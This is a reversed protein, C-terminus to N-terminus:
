PWVAGFAGPPVLEFDQRGPPSWKLELMGGERRGDYRLAFDHTGGALTITNTAGGGVGTTPGPLVTRGGVLLEVNGNSEVSFRYIGPVGTDLTGTWLHSVRSGRDSLQALNRFGIVRDRREGEDGLDNSWRGLLTGSVPRVDLWRPEVIAMEQGPRQWSLALRAQSDRLNGRIELAHWGIGLTVGRGQAIPTGDLLLEAPIGSTAFRYEGNRDAYVSGVWRAETPHRAAGAGLRGTDQEVSSHDGYQATLGQWRAVDAAPVKIATFVTRGGRGKYEEVSAGPHADHIMPTYIAMQPFVLFAVDKDAGVARPMGIGPNQLSDGEVRPALFRTNSHAYYLSPAGLSFVRYGPGLTAAYRGQATVDEWPRADAARGFYMLNDGVAAASPVLVAMIVFAPRLSPSLIHPGQQALWELVLAAGVMAPLLAPLLRHSHPSNTTFVGGVILVTWFWLGFLSHSRSNVRAIMLLLGLAVFPSVIPSVMPWGTFAFFPGADVGQFFYLLNAKLQGWLVAAVDPSKHAAAVHDWNNFIFRSSLHGTFTDPKGVMRELMPALAALGGAAALLGGRFWERWEDRRSILLYCLYVALTPAVLSGGFAFYASLGGLLGASVWWVARRSEQAKWLAWLSLCTMAPIQAVNMGLRSYNIHLASGALLATALLAVRPNFVDKVLLYLALLTAVGALASFSRFGAVTPGLLALFPADLYFHLAPDGLFAPGFPDPGRRELISLVILAHETEDGHIGTPFGELDVLRLAGGVAVIGAIPAWGRYAAARRFQGRSLHPVGPASWGEPWSAALILVLSLVWAGFSFLYYDQSNVQVLPPVAFVVTGVGLALRRGILSRVRNAPENSEHKPLFRVAVLSVAFGTLGALYALGAAGSNQTTAIMFQGIGVGLLTVLLGAIAVGRALTRTRGSSRSDAEFRRTPSAETTLSM